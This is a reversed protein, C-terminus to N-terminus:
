RQRMSPHPSIKTPQNNQSQRGTEIPAMLYDELFDILYKISRCTLMGAKPIIIIIISVGTIEMSLPSRNSIMIQTM